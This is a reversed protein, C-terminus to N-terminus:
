VCTFGRRPWGRLLTEITMPTAPLPSMAVRQMQISAWSFESTKLPSTRPVLSLTVLRLPVLIVAESNRGTNLSGDPNNPNVDANPGLLTLPKNIIVDEQYTGAAVDVTGGKVVAEMGAQITAFADQDLVHGDVLDDNFKGAWAGDFYATEMAVYKLDPTTLSDSTIESWGSTKMKQSSMDEPYICGGKDVAYTKHGDSSVM